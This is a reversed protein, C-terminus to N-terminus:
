KSRNKRNRLVNVDKKIYQVDKKLVAQNESMSALKDFILQNSEVHFQMHEAKYENLEKSVKAFSAKSIKISENITEQNKTIQEKIDIINKKNTDVSASIGGVWIGGAVFVCIMSLAIHSNKLNDM